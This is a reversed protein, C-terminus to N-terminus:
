CQEEGGGSGAFSTTPQLDADADVYLSKRRKEETRESHLTSFAVTYRAEKALHRERQMLQDIYAPVDPIIYAVLWTLFLVLHQDLFFCVFFFPLHYCSVYSYTDYQAAIWKAM